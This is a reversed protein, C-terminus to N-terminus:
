CKDEIEFGLVLFVWCRSCYVKMGVDFDRPQARAEDDEFEIKAGFSHVMQVV